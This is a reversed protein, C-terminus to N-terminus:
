ESESSGLHNDPLEIRLDGVKKVGDENCYEVNTRSTAFVEFIVDEQDDNEPMCIETFTEELAIKQGRSAICYFKDSRGTKYDCISMGYSMPLIRNKIVNKNLGYIVAGRMVSTIPNHPVNICPVKMRFRDKIKKTLYISESFGGVLFMAACKKTTDALQKEILNIIQEVVPDFMSIIDEFNIPIRVCDNAYKKLGPCERNLDLIIRKRAESPEGTFGFKIKPCFFNNILYQYEGYDNQKFNMIADEGIKEGLFKIFNQDVCVGGCLAGSRETVEDLVKNELLTRMTLDVTGGGCDVMLYSDGISLDYENLTEMCHLAAAETPILPLGISLTERETTFELNYNKEIIKTDYICNLFIGIKRTGTFVYRVQSMKIGDWRKTLTEEILILMKKLFDTIAKRYDLGQPLYPKEDDSIGALHLKFIRPDEALANDGWEEVDWNKNYQLVTHAKPYFHWASQGHITAPSKVIKLMLLLLGQVQQGLI